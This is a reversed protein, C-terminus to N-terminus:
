TPRMELILPNSLGNIFYFLLFSRLFSCQEIGGNATELNVSKIEVVKLKVLLEFNM